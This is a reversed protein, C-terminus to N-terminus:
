VAIIIGGKNAYTTSVGRCEQIIIDKATLRKMLEEKLEVAKEYAKVHTIGIVRSEIDPTNEKIIDVLRNLAKNYGRAKDLM